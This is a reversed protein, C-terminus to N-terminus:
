SGLAGIKRPEKKKTNQTRKGCNGPKKSRSMSQYWESIFSRSM